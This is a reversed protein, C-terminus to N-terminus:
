NYRYTYKYTKCPKHPETPTTRTWMRLYESAISKLKQARFNQHWARASRCSICGSFHLLIVDFSCPTLDPCWVPAATCGANTCYAASGHCILSPILVRGPLDLILWSGCGTYIMKLKGVWIERFNQLIWWFRRKPKQAQLITGPPPEFEGRNSNKERLIKQIQIKKLTKISIKFIWNKLKCLAM